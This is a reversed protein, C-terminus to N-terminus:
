SLADNTRSVRLARKASEAVEDLQNKFTRIWDDIELESRFESVIPRASSKNSGFPYIYVRVAQRAELKGRRTGGEFDM